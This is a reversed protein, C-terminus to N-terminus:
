LGRREGDLWWIAFGLASATLWLFYAVDATDVLGHTLARLHNMLSLWTFVTPEAVWQGSWDCAWLFTLVLFGGLAATLPQTAVASCGIGVASSAMLFLALGLLASGLNGWDANSGLTLSLCMLAVASWLVALVGLVGLWKGLVFTSLRVPASQWLVLTGNRREGAISQMALVPVVFIMLLAVMMVLPQTVLESIGPAQALHKLKPAAAQYQELLALWQFAVLFQIAALLGWVSPNRLFARLERGFVVRLM